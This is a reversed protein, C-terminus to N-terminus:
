LPLDFDIAKNRWHGSEKLNQRETDSKLNTKLRGHNDNHLKGSIVNTTVM